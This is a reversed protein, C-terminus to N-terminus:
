RKSRSAATFSSVAPYSSGRRLQGPAAGLHRKFAHAFSSESRYGVTEAIEILPRTTEALHRRALQMRWHTVYDLPTMGILKRFRGAFQTRSMGAESAMAEVTWPKEPARHVAALARSLQPDLVGALTGAADGAKAAFARVVQIFIIETLRHVIADAGAKAGLVEATVFRMVADLWEANMTETNPIHIYRPLAALAPHMLSDDFEFHGCFLQTTPGLRSGGYVLAGSGAYGSRRVVEDVLVADRDPTDSLVHARGHPIAVLDGASMHIADPVGDIRVWCEGRMAMHFRAVKKYEPVRVGWPPTFQTQFYVSGRM